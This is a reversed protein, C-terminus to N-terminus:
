SYNLGTLDTAINDFNDNGDAWTIVSGSTEDIKMVQWSSASQLTGIKAKAIYTVPSAETIKFAYNVTDTFKFPQGTSVGGVRGHESFEIVSGDKIHNKGFLTHYLDSM